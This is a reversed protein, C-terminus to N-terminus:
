PVRLARIARREDMARCGDAVPELPLTQDFLKGPDISGSLVLGILGPM